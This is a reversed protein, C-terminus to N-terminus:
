FLMRKLSSVSVGLAFNFKLIFHYCFKETPRYHGATAADGTATSITATLIKTTASIKISTCSRRDGKWRGTYNLIRQSTFKM